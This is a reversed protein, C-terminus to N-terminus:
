RIFYGSVKWSGDKELVPTVLENAGKRQEFNTDFQIVVYEGDPAGPLSRTYLASKVKRSTLSGLPSRANLLASAWNSQSISSQFFGSAKNWSGGYDGADTLALWAVAAAEAKLIKGEEQARTPATSFVLVALLTAAMFKM